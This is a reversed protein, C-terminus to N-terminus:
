PRAPALRVQSRPPSLHGRDHRLGHQWRGHQWRRHERWLSGGRRPAGLGDGPRRHRQRAPRGIAPVLEVCDGHARRVCRGPPRSSTQGVTVLYQQLTKVLDGRAGLQLGIISGNTTASAAVTAPPATVPAITTATPDTVPPAAPAPVTTTPATTTTITTAPVPDGADPEGDRRELAAATAADVTGTAALANATQFQKLATATGAGFIGDAGGPVPIGAAILKQQLTRVADGRGGQALGLSRASSLGLALSRPTM